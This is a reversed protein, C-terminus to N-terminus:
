KPQPDAPEAAPDAADAVSRSTAETEPNTACAAPAVNRPRSHIMTYPGGHDRAIMEEMYLRDERTYPRVIAGGTGDPRTYKVVM